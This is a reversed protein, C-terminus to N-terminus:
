NIRKIYTEMGTPALGVGFAHQTTRPGNLYPNVYHAILGLGSFGKATMGAWWEGMTFKETSANANHPFLDEAAPGVVGRALKYYFNWVNVSQLSTTSIGDKLMLAAMAELTTTGATATPDNAQPSTAVRPTIYQNLWPLDIVGLYDLVVVGVGGLALWGVLKM